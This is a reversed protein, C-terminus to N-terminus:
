KSPRKKTLVSKPYPGVNKSIYGRLARRWDRCICKADSNARVNITVGNHKFSVMISEIGALLIAVEVAEGIDTGPRVECFAIPKKWLIAM